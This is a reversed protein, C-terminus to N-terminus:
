RIREPHVFVKSTKPGPIILSFYRIEEFLIKKALMIMLRRKCVPCLTINGRLDRKPALKLTAYWDDLLYFVDKSKEKEETKDGCKTCELFGTNTNIIAYKSM